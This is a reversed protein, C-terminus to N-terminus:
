RPVVEGPVVRGDEIRSPLYEGGPQSGGLFALSALSACALVLGAVTLLYWPTRGLFGRGRIVLLRYAAFLVFPALFALVAQLFIRV